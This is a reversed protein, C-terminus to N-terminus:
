PTDHQSDWGMALGHAYWTAWKGLGAALALASATERSPKPMAAAALSKGAQYGSRLAHEEAAGTDEAPRGLMPLRDLNSEPKAIGLDIYRETVAPSSHDALQTADGGAAKTYSCASRRIGHFGRYPVGARECYRQLHWWLQHKCRPWSFVKGQARARRGLREATEPSIDRVIDRTKHKRNEARFLIRRNHLDVDPWEVLMTETIRTGCEFLVRVIETWWDNRPIDDIKGQLTAFFELLQDLEDRKYAKVVRKPVRMPPLEPWEEVYRKRACYRWLACLQVKDRHATATCREQERWGIFKAVVLDSLDDIRSAGPSRGADMALWRDFHRITVAYCDISKISLRRLPAYEGRM